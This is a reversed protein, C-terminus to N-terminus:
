ACRCAGRRAAARAQGATVVLDGAKVGELIEVKGALRVGLKAEIRQSVQAPGAGNDAGSAAAAGAPARVAKFLFQKGGQPVLAEEPVMLARERVAFVIRARAFM